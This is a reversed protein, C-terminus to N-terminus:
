YHNFLFFFVLFSGAYSPAPAAAYQSQQPQGYSPQSAYGGAAAQGYAPPAVQGYSPQQRFFFWLFFMVNLSCCSFRLVSWLYINFVFISKLRVQSNYSILGNICPTCKKLYFKIWFPSIFFSYLTFVQVASPQQGYAPQAGYGGQQHQQAPAAYQQQQAAYQQAQQSQAEYGSSAGSYDTQGGSQGSPYGSYGYGSNSSDM